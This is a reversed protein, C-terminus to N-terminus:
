ITNSVFQKNGCHACTSTKLTPERNM